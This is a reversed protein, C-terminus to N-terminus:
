LKASFGLGPCHLSLDSAVDAADPLCYLGRFSVVGQLM